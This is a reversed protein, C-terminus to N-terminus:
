AIPVPVPAAGPNRGNPYASDNMGGSMMQEVQAMIDEPKQGTKQALEEVMALVEPPPTSGTNSTQASQPEAPAPSGNQPAGADQPPSQGGQPPAAAEAAQMRALMALRGPWDLTELLNEKDIFGGQALMLAQQALEQQRAPLTSSDAVRVDMALTDWETVNGEEDTQTPKRLMAAPNVDVSKPKGGEGTIRIIRNKDEFQAVNVMWMAGLQEIAGGLFRAAMRVRTNDSEAMVNVEAVTKNGPTFGGKSIEHQGAIDDGTKDLMAKM